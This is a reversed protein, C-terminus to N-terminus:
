KNSRKSRTTTIAWQNPKQQRIKHPNLATKSHLPHNQSPKVEAVEAEKKGTVLAVM